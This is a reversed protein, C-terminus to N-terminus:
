AKAQLTLDRQNQKVHAEERIEKTGRYESHEDGKFIVTVLIVRM